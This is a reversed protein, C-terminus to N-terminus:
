TVHEFVDLVLRIDVDFTWNGTNTQAASGLDRILAFRASGARNKKDFGIAEAIAGPTASEPIRVPLDFSELASQLAVATGPTTVGMREGITAEVVMGIAVAEGHLLDYGTCAELAHAISHGFNLTARKGTDREDESVAQAKIEVSKRILPELATPERALIDSRDRVIRDFYAADAIAGHKLAESIGAAFQHPPLTMLVAIDALVFQPQHFAGVLNKGLPLDLGTKGGVSSDIMALLTTPVQVYPIGRHFTAAVFGAVDGVVGGGFAIIASDRGAGTQILRDTLGAWTERTKNWEGAPFELMHCQSGIKATHEQAYRRAVTSDTILGYSRAPCLRQLLDPLSSLTGTGVLVPYSSPGLQVVIESV